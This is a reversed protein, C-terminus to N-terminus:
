SEEWNNWEQEVLRTEFAEYNDRIFEDHIGKELGELYDPDFDPPFIHPLKAFLRLQNIAFGDIHEQAFLDFDGDERMSQEIADVVRGSNKLWTKIRATKAEADDLSHQYQDHAISVPCPSNM